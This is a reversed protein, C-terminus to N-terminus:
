SNILEQLEKVFRSLHFGDCVAHHVQIALPLTVTEANKEFKGITFIPLLYAYGKQLNLNFGEFEIWPLMSVNFTNKPPNPKSQASKAKKFEALDREYLKFFDEFRNAYETWIEYFSETDNNFVTYIPLMYDYIGLTGNEDIATRFEEHKNVITSLYFLMAPYLKQKKEFIRSVDIKVTLSYTCPVNSFFKEFYDRRKWNSREIVSFKM